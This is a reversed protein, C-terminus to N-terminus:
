PMDIPLLPVCLPMLRVFELEPYPIYTFQVFAPYPIPMIFLPPPSPMTMLLEFEPMPINRVFEPVSLPSCSLLVLEPTPICILLVPVPSASVRCFEDVPVRSFNSPAVEPYKPNLMPAVGVDYVNTQGDATAVTDPCDSVESVDPLRDHVVTDPPTVGTESM